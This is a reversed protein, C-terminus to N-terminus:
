VQQKDSLIESAMADMAAYEKIVQEVDAEMVSSILITDESGDELSISRYQDGCLVHEHLNKATFFSHLSHLRPVKTVHDM